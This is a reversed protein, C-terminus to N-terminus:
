IGGRGKETVNHYVCCCIKPPYELAVSERSPLFQIMCVRSTTSTSDICMFFVYSLMVIYQNQVFCEFNIQERRRSYRGERVVSNAAGFVNNLMVFIYGNKSSKCSVKQLEDRDHRQQILEELKRQLPACTPDDDLFSQVEAIRLDLVRLMSAKVDYARSVKVM